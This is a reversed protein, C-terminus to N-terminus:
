AQALEEYFGTLGRIDPLIVVGAGVPEAPRAAFARLRTGDPSALELRGPEPSTEATRGARHLDSPPEPPRSDPDHCM